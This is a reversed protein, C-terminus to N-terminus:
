TKTGGKRGALYEEALRTLLRSVNVGDGEEVAAIKLGTLTSVPLYVTTRKMPEGERRFADTVPKATPQVRSAIRAVLDDANSM